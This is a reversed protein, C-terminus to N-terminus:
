FVAAFLMGLLKSLTGLDVEFTVLSIVRKVEKQPGKERRSGLPAGSSCVAVEFGNFPALIQLFQFM